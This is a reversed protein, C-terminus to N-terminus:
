LKKMGDRQVRPAVMLMIYPTKAIVIVVGQLFSM